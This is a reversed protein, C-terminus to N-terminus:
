SAYTLGWIEAQRREYALLEQMTIDRQHRLTLRSNYMIHYTMNPCLLLAQRRSSTVLMTVGYNCLPM